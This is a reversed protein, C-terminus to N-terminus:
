TEEDFNILNLLLNDLSNEIETTTSFFLAKDYKLGDPFVINNM